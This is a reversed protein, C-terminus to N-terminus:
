ADPTGTTEFTFVHQGIRLSWGLPLPVPDMSIRTWEGAGPAGVYTGQASNADRVLITGGQGIAIYAHVRSIMNDPDQLRVPSAEGSRVAPDNSPERGFVYPRDLVVVLGDQSRLIFQHAQVMATAGAAMRGRGQQERDQDGPGTGDVLFTDALESQGAAYNGSGHKGQGRGNAGPGGRDAITVASSSAGQAAQAPAPAPQQAAAAQGQDGGASAQQAQAAQPAAAASAGQGASAAAQEAGGAGAIPGGAATLVFGNAPVVGARLDSVPDAHVPAGAGGDGGGVALWDYNGPIIQDVWTLAHEGSLEHTAGGLGVTCRVSGRLFVVVGDSVPTVIGFAAIDGSLHGLMWSALRAAVTAAPAQRDAALEAVIGFLEEATQDAAAGGRTILVVTDGFRGVLGNGPEISVRMTTM